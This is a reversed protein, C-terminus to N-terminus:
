GSCFSSTPQHADPPHASTPSCVHNFSCAVAFRPAMCVYASLYTLVHAQNGQTAVWQYVETACYWVGFSSFFFSNVSVLPTPWIETEIYIGADCGDLRNRFEIPFQSPLQEMTGCRAM